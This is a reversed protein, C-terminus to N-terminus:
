DFGRSQPISVMAFCHDSQLRLVCKQNHHSTRVLSLVLFAIATAHDGPLRITDYLMTYLAIIILTAPFDHAMVARKILQGRVAAKQTIYGASTLAM